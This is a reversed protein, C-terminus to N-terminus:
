GSAFEDFYDQYSASNGRDSLEATRSRPTTGRQARQRRAVTEDAQSTGAAQHLREEELAMQHVQRNTYEAFDELVKAADEVENASTIYKKYGPTQLAVWEKWRDSQLVTDLDIGTEATNFIDSAVERLEQKRQYIKAAEAEQQIPRIQKLIEERTQNERRAILKEVSSAVSPFEEMFEKLEEDDMDAIQASTPAAKEPASRTSLRRQAELEAQTKDLQAQLAAKQRAEAAARGAQSKTANVLSEIKKQFTPDLESVWSYPDEEQAEADSRDGESAVTEPAEDPDEEEPADEYDSDPSSDEEEVDDDVSEEEDDDFWNDFEAFKDESEPHKVEDVM